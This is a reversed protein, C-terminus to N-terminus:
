NRASAPLSCTTTARAKPPARKPKKHGMTITQSVRGVMYLTSDTAFCLDYPVDSGFNRTQISHLVNGNEDLHSVFVKDQYRAACYLREPGM